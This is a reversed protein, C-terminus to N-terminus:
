IGVRVSTEEAVEIGEPGYHPAREDACGPCHKWHRMKFIVELSAGRETPHLLWRIFKGGREKATQKALTDLDRREYPMSQGEKAKDLM